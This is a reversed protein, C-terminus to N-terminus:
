FKFDDNGAIWILEHVKMLPGWLLSLMKYQISFYIEQFYLFILLNRQGRRMPFAAWLPQPPQLKLIGHEIPIDILTAKSSM